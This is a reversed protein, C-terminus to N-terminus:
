EKALDQELWQPLGLSVNANTINKLVTLSELKAGYTLDYIVSKQFDKQSSNGVRVINFGYKELDLAVKNALGNIWTANRIEVAAKEQNVKVKEGAPAAQFINNILYQIEAFDGNRPLLVYAGDSTMTDILLGSASNDLVKAIINESKVDKLMDWFKVMEWIKINTSFNEEINNIISSILTPKFLIHLSIVKDKVAGLIRQQRQARAFGSGAIGAAHRSRAYKLALQGDMKQWGQDIHLYEYRESYPAEENGMIPYEYDDLTNDVYVKIGGLDDIIKVFGAFDIRVYYDIPLNLIRSIAQSAALGGSNPNQQEAIANINNIRRWGM